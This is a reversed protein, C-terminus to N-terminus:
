LSGGSLVQNLETRFDQVTNYRYLKSKRFCKALVTDIGESLDDNFQSAPPPQETVAKQLVVGPQGEFPLRATLMEYLILGLHYIDTSADVGGFDEPAIQEPAAYKPPVGMPLASLQCLLQSIGWNSIKPYSWVNDDYSRSFIVNRPTLGGHTVGSGHAHCVADVIRDIIWRTERDSISGLRDSLRGGEQYEVVFWPKPITGHAVVPVIADHDDVSQWEELTETFETDFAAPARHQIRKLLASHTGSSTSYRVLWLDVHSGAGRSKVPDFTDRKADIAPPTPPPEEPPRSRQEPGPRQETPESDDDVTGLGSYESEEGSLTTVSGSLERDRVAAILQKHRTDDGFDLEEIADRVLEPYEAAVYGLARIIDDHTRTPESELLSALARVSGSVAEPNASVVLGLAWSASLRVTEDRSEFLHLVRRIEQSDFTEPETVAATLVTEATRQESGSANM